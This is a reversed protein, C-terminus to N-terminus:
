RQEMSDWLSVWTSELKCCCWSLALQVPFASARLSSKQTVNATTRHGLGSELPSSISEMEQHSSHCHVKLPRAYESPFIPVKDKKKKKCHVVSDTVSSISELLVKDLPRHTYVKKRLGPVIYRKEEKNGITM